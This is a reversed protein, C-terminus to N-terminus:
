ELGDGGSQETAAPSVVARFRGTQADRFWLAVREAPLQSRLEAAVEALTEAADRGGNLLKAVAGV